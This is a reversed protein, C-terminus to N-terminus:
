SRVPEIPREGVVRHPPQAVKADFDKRVQAMESDWRPQASKLIGGKRHEERTVGPSERAPVWPHTVVSGDVLDEDARAERSKSSVPIFAEGRLSCERCRHAVQAHCVLKSDFCDKGLARIRDNNLALRQLLKM